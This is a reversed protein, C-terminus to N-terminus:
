VKFFLSFFRISLSNKAKLSKLEKNESKLNSIQILNSDRQNQIKINLEELDKKAKEFIAIIGNRQSKFEEKM